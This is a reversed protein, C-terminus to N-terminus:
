ASRARAFAGFSIVNGGAARRVRNRDDAQHALEVQLDEMVNRMAMLTADAHVAHILRSCLDVTAALGSTCDIPRAPYRILLAIVPVLRALRVLVDTDIGGDRDQLDGIMASLRLEDLRDILGGIVACSAAQAVLRVYCRDSLDGHSAMQRRADDVARMAQQREPYTMTMTEIGEM